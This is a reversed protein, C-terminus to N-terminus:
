EVGGEQVKVEAVGVAGGVLKEEKVVSVVMVVTAWARMGLSGVVWIEVAAGAVEKAVGRARALVARETTAARAVGWVVVMGVLLRDLSSCRETHQKWRMELRM